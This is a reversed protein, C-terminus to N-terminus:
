RDYLMYSALPQYAYFSRIITSFMSKKQDDGDAMMAVSPTNM